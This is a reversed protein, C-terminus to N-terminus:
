NNGNGQNGRVANYFSDAANRAAVAEGQTKYAQRVAKRDVNSTEGADRKKKYDILAEKPQPSNALM